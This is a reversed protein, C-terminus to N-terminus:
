MRLNWSYFTIVYNLKKYFLYNDSGNEYTQRLRTTNHRARRGDTQRDTRVDTQGDSHGNVKRTREMVSIGNLINEHFKTYIYVMM